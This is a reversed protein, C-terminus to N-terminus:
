QADCPPHGCSCVEMEISGEEAERCADSCYEETQMEATLVCNCLAHSCEITELM